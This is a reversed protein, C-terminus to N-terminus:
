KDNVLMNFDGTLKLDLSYDKYIGVYEGQHATNFRSIIIAKKASYINELKTSSIPIKLISRKPSIVKNNADISASYIFNNAVFLSDSMLNNENLLFIQVCSSFPFGNDAILSLTGNNLNYNNPKTINFDITDTLTLNQAFISLPIELNLDAKFGHNDYAFDNGCSINGLPNASLDLSFEIRDPLNELLEVFNSNDFNFSFISPIVPNSSNFTEQARNIHIPSEIIPSVLSITTQTRTNVSKLEHIICTADIGYGNEINLKLHVGNMKLSGSTIKKFLDFSTSLQGTQSTNSGFYGKIYDIELDKFYTNLTLSDLHSILVSNGNPDIWIKIITTLINSSNGNPGTMNLTYGSIDVTKNYTAPGSDDAAPLLENVEFPIGNLTASPFIFKCLMKEKLSNLANLVLYGSKIVMKTIEADGINLHKNDTTNQILQGPSVTIDINSHFGQSTITDPINVLSDFSFNYLSNNYIIKLSTDPNTQLISDPVLNNIGLTTKLLPAIVSVDWIANGIEKKCANLCYFAFFLTFIKLLYKM